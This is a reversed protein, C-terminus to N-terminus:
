WQNQREANPFVKSRNAITGSDKFFVDSTDIADVLIEIGENPGSTKVKLKKVTNQDLDFNINTCVIFDKLNSDAFDQNNKIKLYSVFYKALRFEGNKDKTLLKGVSIKETGDQKHKVQVFRHVITGDQKYRFVIDDFGAASEMETALRFSYERDVARKLFLMLWKLQYIGGHFSCKLGWTNYTNLM